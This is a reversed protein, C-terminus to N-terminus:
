IIDLWSKVKEGVWQPDDLPLDHGAHPHIGVSSNLRRAIQLSCRFDTFADGKSFLVLTPVELKSPCQFFAAAKLQRLALNRTAQPDQAFSAFKEALEELPRRLQTTKNLILLEKEAQSNLKQMSLLALLAQPKLRQWPKSTNAASTNTLVQAKFDEPYRSLWELSIMSGFSISLLGWNQSDNKKLLLWRERLDEVIEKIQTPSATNSQDGAGPLDLFHLQAKPHIKQFTEPFRDWHRTERALGRLFLWHDIKM